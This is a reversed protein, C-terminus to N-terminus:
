HKGYPNPLIPPSNLPIRSPFEDAFRNTHLFAIDFAERKAYVFEGTQGFGEHQERADADMLIQDIEEQAKINSSAVLAELFVARSEAAITLRDQENHLAARYSLFSNTFATLFVALFLVLRILRYNELTTKIFAQCSGSDNLQCKILIQLEGEAPKKGTIRYRAQKSKPFDAL